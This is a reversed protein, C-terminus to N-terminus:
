CPWGERSVFNNGPRRDYIELWGQFQQSPPPRQCPRVLVAAIPASCDDEDMTPSQFMHVSM